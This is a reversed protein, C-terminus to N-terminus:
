RDFPAEMVDLCALKTRQPRPGPAWVIFDGLSFADSMSVDFHGMLAATFVSAGRDRTGPLSALLDHDSLSNQWM